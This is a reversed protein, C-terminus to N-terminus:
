GLLWWMLHKNNNNNKQPSSRSVMAKKLGMGVDPRLGGLYLLDADVDIL